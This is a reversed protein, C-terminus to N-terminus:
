QGLYYKFCENTLKNNIDASKSLLFIKNENLVFRFGENIDQKMKTIMESSDYGRLPDIKDAAYVTMGLLTMNAKGTAHYRIADLIEEDNIKFDDRAILASYFQHYLKVNIPMYDEYEKNILDIIDKPVNKGIDHLLGAIYFRYPKEINNSKAIEFALMGVSKSHRYRRDDIYTKIKNLYYLDHEHIYNLVVEPIDLNNLDRISNSSVDVLEDGNVKIINYTTINDNLFKFNPRPYYILQVQKSIELANRWLNFKEVQDSGMLFYLKIDQGKYKDLFYKITIYTYNIEDSKLEFDDVELNVYNKLALNLMSLKDLSSVSNNKWISIKNPIFIIKCNNIGGLFEQAKLAMNIHGNHIPDFSGGFLVINKIM